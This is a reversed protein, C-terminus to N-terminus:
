NVETFGGRSDPSWAGSVVGNGDNGWATMRAYRMGAEYVYNHINFHGKHSITAHDNRTKNVYGSWLSYSGDIYFRVSSPDIRDVRIYSMSNTDKTRGRTGQTNSGSFTYYYATDDSSAYAVNQVALICLFISLVTFLKLVKPRNM